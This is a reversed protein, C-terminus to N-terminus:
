LEIHSGQFNATPRSTLMSALLLVTHLLLPVHMHAGLASASANIARGM